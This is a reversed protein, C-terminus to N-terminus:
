GADITKNFGFNNALDNFKFIFGNLNSVKGLAGQINGLKTKLRDDSAYYAVVDGTARITGQCTTDGNITGGALQGVQTPITPQNALSTYQGSTAM